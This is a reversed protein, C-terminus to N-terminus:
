CCKINRIPQRIGEGTVQLVLSPPRTSKITVPLHQEHRIQDPQPLDPLPLQGPLSGIQDFLNFKKFRTAVM